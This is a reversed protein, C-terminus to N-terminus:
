EPVILGWQLGLEGAIVLLQRSDIPKSMFASAGLQLARIKDKHDTSVTLMAVHLLRTAPNRRVAELVALGTMGNLRIDLITLIPLPADQLVSYDGRRFLYDLALKGSHIIILENFLGAQRLTIRALESDNDNDEVYLIKGDCAAM